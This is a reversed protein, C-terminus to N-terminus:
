IQHMNELTSNYEGIEKYPVKFMGDPVQPFGPTMVMKNVVPVEPLFDNKPIPSFVEQVLRDSLIM